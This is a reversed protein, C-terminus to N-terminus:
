GEKSIFDLISNDSEPKDLTKQFRRLAENIDYGRKNWKFYMSSCAIWGFVFAEKLRKDGGMNNIM